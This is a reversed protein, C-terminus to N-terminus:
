PLRLLTANNARLTYAIQKRCPNENIVRRLMEKVCLDTYIPRQRLLLVTKAEPAQQRKEPLLLIPFRTFIGCPGAVTFAERNKEKDV